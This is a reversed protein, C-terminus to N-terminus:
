GKGKEWSVSVRGQALRGMRGAGSFARAAGDGSTRRLNRRSAPGTGADRRGVKPGAERGGLDERGEQPLHPLCGRGAETSKPRQWLNNGSGFPIDLAVQQHFM